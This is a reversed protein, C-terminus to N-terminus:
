NFFEKILQRNEQAHDALANRHSELGLKSIINSRHKHITRKSVSLIEAIEATEFGESIHKLVQRESLSLTKLNKIVESLQNLKHDGFTSSLYFEDDRLVSLAKELEEFADEKLLYADVGFVQAQIIYGDEKHHTILITKVTTDKLKKALEMGSIYPMDVDLIAVDFMHKEILELAELGNNAEYVNNYSRKDFESKMGKLVMPHDDAILINLDKM